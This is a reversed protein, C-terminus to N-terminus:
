LTGYLVDLPTDLSRWVLCSSDCKPTHSAMCSHPLRLLKGLLKRFGVLTNPLISTGFILTVRLALHGLEVVADINGIKLIQQDYSGSSSRKFFFLVCFVSLSELPQSQPTIAAIKPMAQKFGM